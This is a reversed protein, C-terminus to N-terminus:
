SFKFTRVIKITKDPSISSLYTIKYGQSTYTKKATESGGLKRFFKLTEKDTILDYESESIGKIETQKKRLIGKKDSAFTELTMQIKM